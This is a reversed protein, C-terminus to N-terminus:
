RKGGMYKMIAMRIVASNSIDKKKAEREIMKRIQSSIVVNMRVREAMNNGQKNFTSAVTAYTHL